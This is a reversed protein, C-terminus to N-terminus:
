FGMFFHQNSSFFVEIHLSMKNLSSRRQCFALFHVFIKTARVLMFVIECFSSM